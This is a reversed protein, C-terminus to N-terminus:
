VRSLIQTITRHFMEPNIEKASTMQPSIYTILNNHKRNYPALLFIEPKHEPTSSILRKLYSLDEGCLGYADLMLLRCRMWRRPTFDQIKDTIEIKSHITNLVTRLTEVGEQYSSVLQIPEDNHVSTIIIDETASVLEAYSLPSLFIRSIGHQYGDDATPLISTLILHNDTMRPIIHFSRLFKMVDISENFLNVVMGDFNKMKELWSELMRENNFVSLKYRSDEFGKYFLESTLSDILLEIKRRTTHPRILRLSNQRIKQHKHHQVDRIIDISIRVQNENSIDTLIDGNHLNLINRIISFSENPKKSDFESYRVRTPISQPLFETNTAQFDFDLYVKSPDFKMVVKIESLPPASDISFRLLTYFVQYLSIADMLIDPFDDPSEVTIKRSRKEAYDDLLEIIETVIQRLSGPKRQIYIRDSPSQFIRKMQTLCHNLDDLEEKLSNVLSIIGKEGLNKTECFWESAEDMNDIIETMQSNLHHSVQVRLQDMLVTFPYDNLTLIAGLFERNHNLLSSINFEILKDVYPVIFNISDRVSKSALKNFLATAKERSELQHLKNLHVGIIDTQKLNLIREAEHNLYFIRMEKDILIIGRGVHDLIQEHWYKVDLLERSLVRLIEPSQKQLSTDTTKSSVFTNTGINDITEKLHPTLGEVSADLKQIVAQVGMSQALFKEEEDIIASSLLIIPINRFGAKSRVLQCLRYGDIKPMVIDTIMLDPKFKPLKELADLGDTAITVEYGLDSLYEMLESIVM